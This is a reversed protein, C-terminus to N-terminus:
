QHTSTVSAQNRALLGRNVEVMGAVLRTDEGLEVFAPVDKDLCHSRWGLGNDRFSHYPNIRPDATVMERVLDFSVGLDSCLLSLEHFFTVKTALFSNESLKAVIVEAASATLQKRGGSVTDRFWAPVTDSFIVFDLELQGRRSHPTAGHFEPSFGIRDCHRLYLDRGLFDLSVTSRIVVFDAVDLYELVAAELTRYDFRGSLQSDAPTDVMIVAVDVPDRDWEAGAPVPQHLDTVMLRDVFLHEVYDLYIERGIAGYGVLLIRRM